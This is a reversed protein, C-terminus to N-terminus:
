INLFFLDCITCKIYYTSAFADFSREVSYTYANWYFNYFNGFKVPIKKENVFQTLKNIVIM